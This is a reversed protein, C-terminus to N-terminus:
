CMSRWVMIAVLWGAAADAAFHYRGLVAGTSVAAAVILMGVVVPPPADIVLLAAALAEAAHGSPFTNVDISTAGLLRVNFRRVRADWPEGGELSRPPRTQVWPLVAFCLYDTTLIVSWFGVPDPAPTLWLHIVYAIPILLYVAAYACELCEAIGRPVAAAIRRVRAAADVRLLLREVAPMPAVFLLGSTWYAVLLLVPPLLWDHIIPLAPLATSVCVLGFAGAAAGIARIRRRHTLRRPLAAVAATYLFFAGSAAEWARLGEFMYGM